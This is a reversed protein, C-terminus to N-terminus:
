LNIAKGSLNACGEEILRVFERADSFYNRFANRVDESSSARVLVIDKGPFQQELKFLASLAEPSSRYTEIQLNSNKSDDNFILIINKNQSIEGDVTNLGELMRLLGLQEDLELFKQVIEADTADPFCSTLGEASRAIIESAYALAEEYRKDGAQFKPQSETVFGVVEVATAWAHQATTRYQLEILLGKAVAGKKSNVDYDYVDHIGRYGTDKPSKIYDYKDVDNRLRHRFRAQHLNNRFEHLSAIDPFILRCGAVDDMRVLQMGPFRRLKGFITNKRKHRQVVVVDSGQSRNRLIAQFTNLVQRHAERWTDIVDLDEKKANGARVAQGARNVRKKSGWPLAVDPDIAM